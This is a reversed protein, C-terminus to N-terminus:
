RAGEFGVFTIHEIDMPTYYTDIASWLMQDTDDDDGTLWYDLITRIVTLPIYRGPYITRPRTDNSVTVTGRIVLETEGSYARGFRGVSSLRRAAEIVADQRPRRPTAGHRWGRITSEAIGLHRGLARGSGAAEEAVRLNDHFSQGRGPAPRRRTLDEGM